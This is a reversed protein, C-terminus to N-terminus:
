PDGVTGTSNREGACDPGDIDGPRSEPNLVQLDLNGPETPNFNATLQGGSNFTTPVPAGNVLVQAGNIFNSGTLVVTSAGVNFAMPTASSLIPIPNDVVINQSISVAPDDVSVATLQVINNSSPVVAPATYTVSGDANAVITGIQANGGAIGNIMWNVGTNNTGTVTIGIKLSNTVRVSTGANTQLTLVVKGPGVVESVAASNASGPDPNGVM